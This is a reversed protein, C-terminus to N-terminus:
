SGISRAKMEGMGFARDLSGSAEAMFQLKTLRTNSEVSTANEGAPAYSNITEKTQTIHTSQGAIEFSFSSTGEDDLPGSRSGYRAEGAWIETSLRETIKVESLEIGDYLLGVASELAEYAIALDDTGSVLYQLTASAQQGTSRTGTSWREEVTAM